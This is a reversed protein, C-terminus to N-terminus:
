KVRVRLQISSDGEKTKPRPIQVGTFQYEVRLVFGCPERALLHWGYNSTKMVGLQAPNAVVFGVVKHEEFYRYPFNMSFVAHPVELMRVIRVQVLHMSSNLRKNRKISLDIIDYGEGDPFPFWYQYDDGEDVDTDLQAIAIAIWGPRGHNAILKVFSYPRIPFNSQIDVQPQKTREREKFPKQSRRPEQGISSSITAVTAAASVNQTAPQGTPAATEEGEDRKATDATSIKTSQNTSPVNAAAPENTSPSVPASSSALPDCASKKQPRVLLWHSRYPWNRQEGIAALHAPPASPIKTRLKRISGPVVPGATPLSSVNDGKQVIRPSSKLRGLNVVKKLKKALADMKERPKMPPRDIPIDSGSALTPLLPTSSM